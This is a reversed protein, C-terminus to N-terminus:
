RTGTARCAEVTALVEAVSRPRVVVQPVVRYLSADTSYLARTLSSDDVDSVGLRELEGVVDTVTELITM